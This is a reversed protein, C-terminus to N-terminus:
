ELEHIGAKILKKLHYRIGEETINLFVAMEKATTNPKEKIMQLISNQQKTTTKVM